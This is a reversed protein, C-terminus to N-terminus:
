LAAEVEVGIDSAEETSIGVIMAPILPPSAAKLGTSSGTSALPAASNQQRM